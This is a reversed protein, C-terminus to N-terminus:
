QLQCPGRVSRLCIFGLGVNDRRLCCARHSRDYLREDVGEVAEGDRGIIPLKSSTGFAAGQLVYASIDFFYPLRLM